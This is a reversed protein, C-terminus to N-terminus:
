EAKHTHIPEKLALDWKARGAYDIEGIVLLERVEEMKEPLIFVDRDLNSNFNNEKLLNEFNFVHESSERYMGYLRLHTIVNPDPAGKKSQKPKSFSNSIDEEGLKDTNKLPAGAFLPEIQVFWIKDNKLM